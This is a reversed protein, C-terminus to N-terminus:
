LPSAPCLVTPGHLCPFTRGVHALGCGHVLVLEVQLMCLQAQFDRRHSPCEADEFASRALWMIFAIPFHSPAGLHIGDGGVVGSTPRKMRSCSTPPRQTEFTARCGM